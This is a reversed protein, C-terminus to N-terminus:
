LSGNTSEFVSTPHYKRKKKPIATATSPMEMFFSTPSFSRAADCHQFYSSSVKWCRGTSWQNLPNISFVKLQDALQKNCPFPFSLCKKQPKRKWADSCILAFIFFFFCFHLLSIYYKNSLQRDICGMELPRSM